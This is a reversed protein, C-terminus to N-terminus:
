WASDRFSTRPPDDRDELNEFYPEETPKTTIELEEYSSEDDAPLGRHRPPTLPPEPPTGLLGDINPLGELADSARPLDNRRDNIPQWVEAATANVEAAAKQAASTIASSLRHPTVQTFVDEDLITDIVIGRANVAVTVRGDLESATATLAAVKNRADTIEGVLSNLSGMLSDVDDATRPFEM